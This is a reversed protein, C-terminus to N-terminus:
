EAHAILVGLDGLRANSAAALRNARTGPVPSSRCHRHQVRRLQGAVPFQQAAGIVGIDAAAEAAIVIGASGRNRPDYRSMLALKANEVVVNWTASTPLFRALSTASRPSLREIAASILPRGRNNMLWGRVTPMSNLSTAPLVAARMPLGSSQEPEAISRRARDCARPASGFSASRCPARKSPPYRSSARWRALARPPDITKMFTPRLSWLTRATSLDHDLLLGELVDLHARAVHRLDHEGLFADIGEIAAEM